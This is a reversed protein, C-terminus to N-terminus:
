KGAVEEKPKQVSESAAEATYKRLLRPEELTSFPPFETKIYEMQPKPATKFTFTDYWTKSGSSYLAFEDKSVKVGGIVYCFHFTEVEKWLEEISKSVKHLDASLKVAVSLSLHQDLTRIKTMQANYQGLVEQLLEEWEKPKVGLTKRAQLRKNQEEIVKLTEGVMAVIQEYTFSVSPTSSVSGIVSPVSVSTIAISDSPGAAAAATLTPESRSQPPEEKAKQPGFVGEAAAIVENLLRNFETDRVNRSYTYQSLQQIKQRVPVLNVPAVM